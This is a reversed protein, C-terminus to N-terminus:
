KFHGVAVVWDSVEPLKITLEMPQLNDLHIESYSKKTDVAVAALTIPIGTLDVQIADTNERYLVLSQASWSFIM